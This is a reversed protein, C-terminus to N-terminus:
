GPLLLHEDGDRPGGVPPRYFTPWAPEDRVGSSRSCRTLSLGCLQVTYPVHDVYQCIVVPCPPPALQAPQRTTSTHKCTDIYTHMHYEITPSPATSMGHMAATSQSYVRADRCLRSPARRTKVSWASMAQVLRSAGRHTPRTAHLNLQMRGLVAKSASKRAYPHCRRIFQNTKHNPWNWLCRHTHVCVIYHSGRPHRVM